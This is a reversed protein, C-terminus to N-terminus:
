ELEKRMNDLSERVIQQLPLKSTCVFECLAVDEPAIEYAGLAEMKDINGTIMAKFLFEPLIDMPLVKDYEGSMIIAREGGLVRADYEFDKKGFVKQLIASFYLRSASFKNFRPMAWGVLEHNDKGEKIVSIQTAYPDIYGNAPIQLGSLVNGGIIRHEVGMTVNGKLLPAVASGSLTQIYQPKVVEPGVVAMTRTLDVIGKSFLRGIFLLDLANVTWVVDGKNVPNLHNIQIGVNGAPHPGEFVTIDANQVTSFITNGPKTGLNVKVGAMKALADIGTQFDKMESAVVYEYDPALPASDFASVFVAKPPVTPNAIVDYPRQKVYVWLGSALLLSKIEEGSLQSVAKVSFEEYSNKEDRQITISLVKRREGRNVALVKGSVPSVFKMSEIAKNYFLPTGAKVVDGEKVVVKPTIGHYHDPIVAVVDSIKTGSIQKEAKGGIQIDLGRKTKILQAM